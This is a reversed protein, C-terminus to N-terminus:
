VDAAVCIPCDDHGFPWVPDPGPPEWDPPFAVTTVGRLSGCCVCHVGTGILVHLAGTRPWGNMWPQETRIDRSAVRAEKAKQNRQRSRAAMRSEWTDGQYTSSGDTM